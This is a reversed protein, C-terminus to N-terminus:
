YSFFSAISHAIKYKLSVTLHQSINVLYTNSLIKYKINNMHHVNKCDNTHTHTHTGLYHTPSIRRQEIVAQPDPTKIITTFHTKNLANTPPHISTYCYYLVRRM